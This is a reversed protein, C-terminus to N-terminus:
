LFQIFNNILENCNIEIIKEPFSCSKSCVAIKFKSDLEYEKIYYENLYICNNVKKDLDIDFSNLRMYLGKGIAKIYSEKITWIRFFSENRISIKSSSIYANELKGFFRKAVLFNIDRIMEIDIGIANKDIACIIWNYSHSINYKINQKNSISPKGYKNKIINIDNNKLNLKKIFLYRILIEGIISVRSNRDKKNGSKINLVDYYKDIIFGDINVAYLEIM